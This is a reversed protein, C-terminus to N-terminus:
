TTWSTWRAGNSELKGKLFADHASLLHLMELFNGRNTSSLEGRNTSSLKTLATRDETHGRFSVNQRGIWQCSRDSDEFLM